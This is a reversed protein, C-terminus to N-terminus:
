QIRSANLGMLIRYQDKSFESFANANGFSRLVTKNASGPYTETNHYYGKAHLFYQTGPQWNNDLFSLETKEEGQLEMRQDDDRLLRQDPDTMPVLRANGAVELHTSISAADIEWFRFVTELRIKLHTGAKDPINVVMSLERAAMTGSLPFYDAMEWSKGNYVKVILPLGQKLQWSEMGAAPQKEKRTRWAEYEEGFLQTFSQNMAAAWSTNRGTVHLMVQSSGKPVEFELHLASLTRDQLDSDFQFLLGDTRTLKSLQDAGSEDTAKQPAQQGSVQYFNGYRDAKAAKGEVRPVAILEVLNIFQKENPTNRAELKLIRQDLEGLPLYDHRELNAYLAGSYVGNVYQYQGQQEMFIEPCGCGATSAAGAELGVAFSTSAVVIVATIAVAVLALGIISTTKSRQTAKADFEYIDMRYISSVPINVEPVWGTVTDKTYLHVENLVNGLKKKAMVNSSKQEPELAYTHSKELPKITGKLHDEQLSVNNLQYISKSRGSHLIFVKQTNNLASVKEAVNESTTGTQYYKQFCGALLLVTLLVQWPRLKRLLLIPFFVYMAPGSLRNM